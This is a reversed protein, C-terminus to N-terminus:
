PYGMGGSKKRGVISGIMMKDGKQTVTWAEGLHMLDLRDDFVTELEGENLLYKRKSPAMDNDPHYLFTEYIFIGGDKLADIIQPFLRRELYYTCVILDYTNKPLEYTDFDAEKATINEEGQLAEIATSSIDLAEVQFGKKALYRAHRGMGCAIDLAKKGPAFKAYNVVLEVPQTPTPSEIHKKDWKEKDQLAM